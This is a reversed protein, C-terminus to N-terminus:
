FPLEDPYENFIEVYQNVVKKSIPDENLVVSETALVVPIPPMNNVDCTEEPMVGVMGERFSQENLEVQINKNEEDMVEETIMM